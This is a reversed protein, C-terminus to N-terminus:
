VYITWKLYLKAFVFQLPRGGGGIKDIIRKEKYTYESM